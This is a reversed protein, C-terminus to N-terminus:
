FRNRMEETYFFYKGSDSILQFFFEHNFFRNKRIVSRRDSINKFIKRKDPLLLCIYVVDRTIHMVGHQRQRLIAHYQGYMIANKKMLIGPQLSPEKMTKEQFPWYSM